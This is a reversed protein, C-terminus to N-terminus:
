IHILSLLWISLALGRTPPFSGLVVPIFLYALATLVAWHVGIRLAQLVGREQWPAIIQTEGVKWGSLLSNEGNSIWSRIKQNAHRQLRLLLIFLGLALLGLGLGKVWEIPRFASRYTEIGERISAAQQEALRLRPLAAADAARDDVIFAPSFEGNPGEVGIFSIPPDDEM